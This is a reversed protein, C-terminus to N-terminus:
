RNFFNSNLKYFLKLPKFFVNAKFSTFAFASNYLRIKELFMQSRPDTGNILNLLLLPLPPDPPLIFKKKSCCLSFVPNQLTGETKEEVFMRANCNSCILERNNLKHRGYNTNNIDKIIGKGFINNINFEQRCM